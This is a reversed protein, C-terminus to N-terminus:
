DDTFVEEITEARVFRISWTRIMTEDAQEVQQRYREAAELGFKHQLQLLLLESGEEQRGRKVGREEGVREFSTVFPMKYAEEIERAEARYEADVDEPLHILWNLLRFLEEIDERSYGQNMLRRTLETKLKKRERVDSVRKAVLQALVVSAFPNPNAELESWHAEWDLLKAVPYEFSLRCGLREYVYRDPRFSPSADALVAASVIDRRYRDYLRYHYTYMREEFGSEPDGQVEVHLLIWTPEGDKTYVEALKDTYRRGTEADRVVQQLEGDRFRYGQSWDIGAHIVPFLLAMAQELYHELAEKWPSDQDSKGGGQQREESM